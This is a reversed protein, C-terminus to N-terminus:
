QCFFDGNIQRQNNLIDQKGENGYKKIKCRRTIQKGYQDNKYIEKGLDELNIKISEQTQTKKKEQPIEIQKWEM